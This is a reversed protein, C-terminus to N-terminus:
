KIYVNTQSDLNLTINLEKDSNSGLTKSNEAINIDDLDGYINLTYDSPVNLQISNDSGHLNIELNQNQDSLEMNLISSSTTIDLNDINLNKFDLSHNQNESLNLDLDIKVKTSLHLQVFDKVNSGYDALSAIKTSNKAELSDLKVNKPALLDYLLNSNSSSLSLMASNLSMSLELKDIDSSIKSIQSYYENSDTTHNTTNKINVKEVVKNKSEDTYNNQISEQSKSAVQETGLELYFSYGFFVMILSILIYWKTNKNESFIIQFGSVILFVPWLKALLFLFSFSLLGFQEVMLYLGALICFIGLNQKVKM